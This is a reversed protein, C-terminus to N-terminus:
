RAGQGFGALAGRAGAARANKLLIPYNIGKGANYLWTREVPTLIRNWIMVLDIRGNHYSGAFDGYKGLALGASAVKPTPPGAIQDTTGDNVQIYVKNTAEDYFGVIFYWTVTAPIGLSNAVAEYISTGDGVTFKFRNPTVHFWLVYEIDANGGGSAIKGIFADNASVSDMYVWAALTLSRQYTHRMRVDDALTLAESNAATFQAAGGDKGVAGTVTNVDTLTLAHVHADARNGSGEELPWVAMLSDLLSVDFPYTRGNGGNYLATIEAPTFQRKWFGAEDILGDFCYTASDWMRGIDLAHITDVPSGTTASVNEYQDNVRIGIENRDPDHWCIIHYWVGTSIAGLANATVGGVNTSGNYVNFTFKSANDIALMFERNSSSGDKGVIGMYEIPLSSAKVWVSWSYSIDGTSIDADDATTLYESNARVFQAANGIKGAASMVTNTDTLVIGRFEGTRNGSAEDLKWYEILGETLRNVGFPYELGSGGGYLAKKEKVTLLRKWFGVGDVRGNHYAAGALFRGIEFPATGDNVGVTHALSDITGDNVQINLTNGVPDHWIIIFIWTGVTPSGFSNASLSYASAGSYVRLVIRDSALEYWVVWESSAAGSDTKGIFGRDSSKTDIYLWFACTFAIDGTSLQPNDAISLYESNAATFQAANGLKGAAQTVTNNDTLHNNSHWDRRVGSAEELSWYAILGDLLSPEAM